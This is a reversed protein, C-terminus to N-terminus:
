GAQSTEEEAPKLKFDVNLRRPQGQSAFGVFLEVGWVPMDEVISMWVEEPLWYGKQQQTISWHADNMPRGNRRINAMRAISGPLWSNDQYGIEYESVSEGFTSKLFRIIYKCQTELSVDPWIKMTPCGPYYKGRPTKKQQQLGAGMNHFTLHRAEREVDFFRQIDLRWDPETIDIIFSPQLFDFGNKARSNEYQQKM